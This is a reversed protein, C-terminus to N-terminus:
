RVYTFITGYKRATDIFTPNQINTGNKFMITIPDNRVYDGNYEVMTGSALPNYYYYTPSYQGSQQNPQCCVISSCGTSLQGNLLPNLVVVSSLVFNDNGIVMTDAFALETTNISTMGSMTGPVSVYRFGIDVNAFNVSQHRRNVYFFIIKKSHIVSKNKPILMKNEIFWDSQTLANALNIVHGGVAGDGHINVPLKINCIPTNVFTARSAAGLNAYGYGAHHVFASIQTYTPRYSFVALLKRLLTGEDQVQHLEPSDFYTWDYSSLVKQLGTIGDDVNFSEGHSYFKGQRLSLVNKWLEIQITFRKLLNTMPTENSFYNLSNPDRAIDFALELDAELEGPLLDNLNWSSYKMVQKKTDEQTQFYVQTRQVVLRGINSFLMRKELVDIKPLFLAVLLPHIFLNVNHKHKDYMGTIADPACSRYLVVNNRVAAHIPKTLEYLRAIENLPAYDAPTVSLTQGALSSFGLFKSMKTHELEQFPLYQTETDGTLVLRKFAEVEYEKLDHKSAFKIGKKMLEPTDLHGYRQVIKDRFKTALKQVKKIRPTYTEMLADVEKQDKVQSKLLQEVQDISLGVKLYFDLLEDKSRKTEVGRTTNKEM